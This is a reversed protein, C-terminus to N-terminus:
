ADAKRAAALLLEENRAEADALGERARVLEDHLSAALRKVDEIEAPGGYCGEATVLPLHEPIEVEEFGPLEDGNADFLIGFQEFAAEGGGFVHGFPRDRDIKRLKNM